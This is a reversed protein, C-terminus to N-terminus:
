ELWILHAMRGTIAERRYSYFLDPESFTCHEGGSVDLVGCLALRQRALLYLNALWHTEDKFIFAQSANDDQAVFAARVDEGVEFAKVSIAPALWVLVEAPPLALAELTNELVGAALGRWGAHAVAVKTGERDCFFVPLCDATMVVCVQGRETTFSADACAELNESDASLVQTGHVQQLWCPESPLALNQKLLARNAAVAVPDDGVHSALNFSDFPPVSVGGHRTSTYAKVNMPANWRPTIWKLM